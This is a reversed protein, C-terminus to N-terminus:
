CIASFSTSHIHQGTLIAALFHGTKFTLFTLAMVQGVGPVATIATLRHGFFRGPFRRALLGPDIGVVQIVPDQTTVPVTDADDVFM